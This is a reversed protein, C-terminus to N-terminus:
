STQRWESFLATVEDVFSVEGCGGITVPGVVIDTGSYHATIETTISGPCPDGLLSPDVGESWVVGNEDLLDTFRAVQQPHDQTHESTDFDPLAQSQSFTLSVIDSNAFGEQAHHAERYETFFTTADAEFSGADAACGNITMRDEGAGHYLLHVTTTIGGTCGDAERSTYEWPRIDHDTLLQRFGAIWDGTGDDGEEITYESDDFGLVAQSQSFEVQYILDVSKQMAMPGFGCGTLLLVTSAVLAGLVARTM